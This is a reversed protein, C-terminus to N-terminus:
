TGPSPGRISSARPFLEGHARHRLLLWVHRAHLGLCGAHCVAAARCLAAGPDHVPQHHRRHDPEQDARLRFLGRLYLVHGDVAAAPLERRLRGRARAAAEHTAWNFVWFYLLSPLWLVIYFIICGLWKSIVVQWDQVPATMLSEITGLKFEESFTRMTILPFILLYAIWFLITNFFAQIVTVDTPGRNLLSIGIYFSFGNLLLFFFMVVYAIPSYFFSKVERGLLTFFTTM